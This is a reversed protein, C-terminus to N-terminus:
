DPHRPMRASRDAPATLIPATRCGGTMTAQGLPARLSEKGTSQQPPHPWQRLGLHGTLFRAVERHRPDRNAFTQHPDVEEPPVAAPSAKDRSTLLRNIITRNPTSM